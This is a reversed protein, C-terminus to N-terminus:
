FPLDETEDAAFAPPPTSMPAPPQNAQVQQQTAPAGSLDIKWPRLDTYWRGNYERSELDFSINVTNGVAINNGFKDGWASFCAKKSFQGSEFEIVFDQKKWPGNKGEGTQLPLLQVIKGSIEM